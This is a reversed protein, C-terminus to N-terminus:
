IGIYFRIHFALLLLDLGPQHPERLTSLLSLSTQPATLQWVAYAVSDLGGPPLPVQTLAAPHGAACRTGLKVREGLHTTDGDAPAEAAFVEEKRM